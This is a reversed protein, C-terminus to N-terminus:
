FRVNLFGGFVREVGSVFDRKGGNQDGAPIQVMCFPNVSFKKSLPVNLLTQVRSYIFGGDRGMSGQIAFAFSGDVRLSVEGGFPKIGLPQDRKLGLWFFEGDKSAEGVSGFYRVAVYPQAFPIKLFEVRFDAVFRDDSITKWDGLIYYSLAIDCTPIWFQGAGFARKYGFSFDLEKGFKGYKESGLSTANWLGGYFNNKSVVVENIMIPADYAVLGAKNVYQNQIGAKARYQIEGATGLNDFLVVVLVVASIFVGRVATSRISGFSNLQLPKM